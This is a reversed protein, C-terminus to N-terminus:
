EDDNGGETQEVTQPTWAAHQQELAVIAQDYFRATAEAAVALARDQLDARSVTPPVDGQETDLAEGAGAIEERYAALDVDGDILHQRATRCRTEHRLEAAHHVQSIRQARAQDLTDLRARVPAPPALLAQLASQPATQTTPYDRVAM